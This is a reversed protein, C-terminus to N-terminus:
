NIDVSTVRVNEIVMCISLVTTKLIQITISFTSTFERKMILTWGNDFIQISCSQVLIFWIQETKM